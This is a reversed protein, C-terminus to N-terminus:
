QVITIQQPDRAFICPAGKYRELKGVVKIQKNLYGYIDPFKPLDQCTIVVRFDSGCQCESWEDYSLCHQRYNDFYLMTPLMAIDNNSGYDIMTGEVAVDIGINKNIGELRVGLPNVRSQDNVAHCFYKLRRRGDM